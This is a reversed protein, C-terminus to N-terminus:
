GPVAAERLEIKRFIIEANGLVDQRVDGNVPRMDIIRQGSPM